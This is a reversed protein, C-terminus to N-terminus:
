VNLSPFNDGARIGPAPIRGVMIHSVEHLATAFDADEVIAELKLTVIIDVNVTDEAGHRASHVWPGDHRAQVMELLHADIRQM